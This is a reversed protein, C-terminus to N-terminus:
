TPFILCFFPRCTKHNQNNTTKIFSILTKRHYFKLYNFGLNCFVFTLAIISVHNSSKFIIHHPKLINYGIVFTHKGEFQM